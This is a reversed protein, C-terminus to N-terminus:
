AHLALLPPSRAVLRVPTRSVPLSAPLTVPLEDVAVIAPAVFDGSLVHDLGHGALCVSCQSGDAHREIDLQHQVLSFQGVVLLVVFLLKVVKDPM